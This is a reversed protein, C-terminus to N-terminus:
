FASSGFVSKLPIYPMGGYNELNNFKNVCDATTRRCGPYITVATGANLDPVPTLMTLTSGVHNEIMVKRGFGALTTWELIGGSYYGDAQNAAEAVTVDLGSIATATGTTAYDSKVVKCQNGYLVHPCSRQYRRRLGLRKLSTFVSECDIVAKSNEWTM